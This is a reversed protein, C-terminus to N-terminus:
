CIESSARRQAFAAVLSTNPTGAIKTESVVGAQVDFWRRWWFHQPKQAWAAVSWVETAHVVRCRDTVAAVPLDSFVMTPYIEGAMSTTGPAARAVADPFVFWEVNVCCMSDACRQFCSLIRAVLTQPPPEEKEKEVQQQSTEKGLVVAPASTAPLALFDGAHYAANDKEFGTYVIADPGDETGRSPRGIWRFQAVGNTKALLVGVDASKVVGTHARRPREKAEESPEPAAPTAEQTSETDKDGEKKVVAVRKAPPEHEQRVSGEKDGEETEAAAPVKEKPRKKGQKTRSVSKRTGGSSNDADGSEGESESWATSQLLLAARPLTPAPEVPVDALADANRAGIDIGGPVVVTAAIPDTAPVLAGDPMMVHDFVYGARSSNSTTSSSSGRVSGGNGSPRVHTHGAICAISCVCRDASPFVENRRADRGLAAVVGQRPLDSARYVWRGRLYWAGPGAASAALYAPIGRPRVPQKKHSKKAPVFSLADVVAIFRRSGLLVYDGVCVRGAGGRVELALVGWAPNKLTDDM